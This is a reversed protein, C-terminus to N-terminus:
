GLKGRFNAAFVAGFLSRAYYGIQSYSPTFRCYFAIIKKLPANAM